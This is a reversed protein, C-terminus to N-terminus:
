WSGGGGGGSGGGSSGGGSRGRSSGGSSRGRSSGRGSGGGGSFINGWDVGSFARGGGFSTAKAASAVTKNMFSGFTAVDFTTSGAFWDPPQLAIVEFKKIWKDSVGLIYTYPLINYFFKPDEMVLQELKPKEAAKLFTKFGKIEGLLEKGYASRKAVIKFMATIGTIFACALGVIYAFIYIPDALLAPLVFFVWPIGGFSLGWVLGFLKMRIDTKWFVFAFLVIFGICPVLLAVLLPFAGDYELYPKVTILLYIIAIVIGVFLSKSQSIKKFYKLKNENRNLIKKIDKLTTYFSDKLDASTVVDFEKEIDEAQLPNKLDLLGALDTIKVKKSKRFLGALFKREIEDEGDYDKLKIVKFAKSKSFSSQEEAEVIKIYGKNALYILLSIVDKKNARGKYLFGIEASNFGKPPYFEVTESAKEYKGRGFAMCVTLLMFLIPVFLIVGTMLDLNYTANVFYGEPLELRITLARRENLVGNYSGTIVNGNVQYTIDSSDTSGKHGSSFGLKSANFEKPMTITFTINSITTIWENGILNFYLEDYDKGTDKGINYTYRITYSKAGTLTTDVDGIRLRKKGNDVSSTYPADVSINTIKARNISKTGDLRVVTNKLPIERYIGHQPVNFFASIHETIDFTNNEHVIVNIDYSDILYEYNRYSNSSSLTSKQTPVQSSTAALATLSTLMFLSLLVTFGNILKKM